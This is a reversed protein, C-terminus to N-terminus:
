LQRTPQRVPEILWGHLFHVGLLTGQNRAAALLRKVALPM